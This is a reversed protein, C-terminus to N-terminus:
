IKFVEELGSRGPVFPGYRLWTLAAPELAILPESSRSLPSSSARSRPFGDTTPEFGVPGVM